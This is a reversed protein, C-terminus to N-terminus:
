KLKDKEMELTRIVKELSSNYYDFNKQSYFLNYLKRSYLNLLILEDGIHELHGFKFTYEILKETNLILQKIKNKEIKDYKVGNSSYDFYRIEDILSIVENKLETGAIEKSIPDPKEIDIQIQNLLKTRQDQAKIAKPIFKELSLIFEVCEYINQSENLTLLKTIMEPFLKHFIELSMVELPEKEDYIITCIATLSSLVIIKM